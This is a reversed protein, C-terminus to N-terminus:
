VEDFWDAIDPIGMIFMYRVGTMVGWDTITFAVECTSTYKVNMIAEHYQWTRAPLWWSAHTTWSGSTGERSHLQALGVPRFLYDLTNTTYWDAGASFLYHGSLIVTLNFNNTSTAEGLYSYRTYYTATFERPSYATITLTEGQSPSWFRTTWGQYGQDIGVVYCHFYSTWTHTIEQWVITHQSGFKAWYEYKNKNTHEYGTKFDFYYVPQGDIKLIPETLAGTSHEWLGIAKFTLKVWKQYIADVSGGGSPVTLWGSRSSAIGTCKTWDYRVDNGSVVSSEDTYIFSTWYYYHQSGVKWSFSKPLDQGQYWIGDVCLVNRYRTYYSLGSADFTVTVIEAFVAKLTRAKDMYVSIPNNTDKSGDLLWYDFEYGSNATASVSVSSGSDFWHEGPSPNTTGGSSPSVEIKLRYEVHYAPDFSGPGTVSFHLNWPANHCAYRKGDTSSFVYQTYIYMHSSESDWWFTIPLASGGYETYDIFVVTGTADSGLGSADFTWKYQTKYTAKVEGGDAPVTITDSQKDSLGTTSEWVYRKGSTRMSYIPSLWEFSHSSGVDWEFSKGYRIESYTYYDDDVRLVPPEFDLYGLPIVDSGLGSVMFTVTAKQITITLKYTTSKSTGCDSSGTISITHTGTPASSSVTVTMTSTATSGPSVTVPNPNFSVTVGSPVGSASLTVTMSSGSGSLSMVNVTVTKTVSGSFPRDVSGSSPSVSISFDNVYVILSTLEIEEGDSGQIYVVYRGLSISPPATITLSLSTTPTVTKQTWSFSLDEPWSIVELIVSEPDGRELTVEVTVSKSAGRCLGLTEPNVDVSFAFKEKLRMTISGSGSVTATTSTSTPSAISVSGSTEWQKFEYGNPITGTRLSYSGMPKQALDGHSYSVGDFVLTASSITNGSEDKIYFVIAYNKKTFVAKLNHPSDMKVPIPNRYDRSGDLLWYNFKYGNGPVAQVNKSTERDYWYTRPEPDTTGGSGAEIILRYEIHYSASKSGPGTVTITGGPPNHCAYRKGDVSTSVYEYYQYTHRSGEWWWFSKPLSGRKYDDTGDVKVVNGTADGGIGSQSFTWKYQPKVYATLSTVSPVQMTRPNKTSGDSWKTFFYRTDSRPYYPSSVEVTHTGASVSFSAKGSSDTTRSVGDVKVTVGQIGTSAGERKVYITLTYSVEKFRVELTRPKDMKVPIPNRYDKDGDLLWYDFEYGSNATAKASVQTDVNYWYDGGTTSKKPPDLYVSGSGSPSVSVRLRFQRKYSASVTKPSNVTVSGSQTSTIIYRKGSTTSYIPTKWTYSVTRGADVWIYVPNGDYVRYNKGDFTISDGSFDSGLGSTQLTVKYQVAKLYATVVKDSSIFFSRPKDRNEDNWKSFAYESNSTTYPSVIEVSHWGYSVQISIKGSKDTQYPSGDVKVTVGQLGNTTGEKCVYITLTYSARTFVATLEHPCNMPVEMSNDSGYDAGDLVWKSFTYGAAPNATVRVMTGADYYGDPSEPNLTVSGAGSPSTAITLRYQKTYTITQSTQSPVNMSGSSPSAVYRVGSGASIPSSVSWSYTGAEVNFSITSTTSSKNKGGFTVSWSTNSPLGTQIFIVMYKGQGAYGGSGMCRVLTTQSFTSGDTFTAKVTITYSNGVIFGEPPPTPNYEVHSWSQGPQLGDEPLAVSYDTGALNVTLGSVPKSGSNKVTVAFVTLGDTQVYLYAEEVAVLGSSALSGGMSFLFNYVLVSSTMCVAILIITAVLPSVGRVKRRKM